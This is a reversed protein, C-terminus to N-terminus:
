DGISEGPEDVQEVDEAAPEVSEEADTPEVDEIVETEEPEDTFDPAAPTPGPPLDEPDVVTNPILQLMWGVAIYNPRYQSSDPDLSPYALRNWYAVSRGDTGYLKAIRELTDGRKVAYVFFTPQPTPTPRVFSPTATPGAPTPTPTRTAGAAAGPPTRNTPEPVCGVLVVFTAVFSLVVALTGSAPVRSHMVDVTVAPRGDRHRM